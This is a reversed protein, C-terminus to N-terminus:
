RTGVTEAEKKTTTGAAFFARASARQAEAQATYLHIYELVQRLNKPMGNYKEARPEFFARAEEAHKADCYSGAVYPAFAAYNEPIKLLLAEFNDQLWRWAADRTRYDGSLLFVETAGEDTRLKPDLSLALARDSRARDHVSGLAALIRGRLEADDTHALRDLMADFIAQDGQEMAVGLVLGALDPDVAETHFKGDTLGAYARGRKVAERLAAPDKASTLLSITQGRLRRDSTSEGKVAAFGLRKYAPTFLKVAYADVRARESLPVLRERAFDILPIAESAVEGDTDRAV